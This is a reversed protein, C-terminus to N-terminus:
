FVLEHGRRFSRGTLYPKMREKATKPVSLWQVSYETLLGILSTSKIEDAVHLKNELPYKDFGRYTRGNPAKELVVVVLVVLAATLESISLMRTLM